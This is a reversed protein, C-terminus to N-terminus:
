VYRTWGSAPKPQKQSALLCLRSSAFSPFLLRLLRIVRRTDGDCATAQSAAERDRRPPRQTKANSETRCNSKWDVPPGSIPSLGLPAVSRKPGPVWTPLHLQQAPLLALVGLACLSPLSLRAAHTRRALADRGKGRKSRGKRRQTKAGQRGLFM